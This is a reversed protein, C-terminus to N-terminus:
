SFLIALSRLKLSPDKTPEMMFVITQGQYTMVWGTLNLLTAAPLNTVDHGNLAPAVYFVQSSTQGALTEKVTGELGNIGNKTREGDRTWDIFLWDLGEHSPYYQM